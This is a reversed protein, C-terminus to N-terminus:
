RTFATQDVYLNIPFILHKFIWIWFFPKVKLGPMGVKVINRELLSM